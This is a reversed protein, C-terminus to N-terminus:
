VIRQQSGDYEKNRMEWETKGEQIPVDSSTSKKMEMKMSNWFRKKLLATCRECVVVSSSADQEENNDTRDVPQFEEGCDICVKSKRTKEANRPM